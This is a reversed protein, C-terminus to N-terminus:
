SHVAFRRLVPIRSLVVRMEDILPHHLMALTLLWLAVGVGISTAVLFWSVTASWDVQMMLLFSPAVAVLMLLASQVFVRRIEGPITGALRKVHPYYLLVGTCADAVRGLAAGVLSFQCGVTFLIIGLVSRTAELRTQRATEDHLVFLEWSMGYCLSVLQMLMLCSLPLAAGLWQDGYLLHVTPKSLIAIGLLLPWMVATILQLSRLYTQRLTGTERFERSMQVFIIQTATGYVNNWILNSLNSARGYLGLAALGLVRGLILESIRGAFAGMGSMMVMRMGFTAITRWGAFSIRFGTHERGYIGYLVATCLASALSGYAPSLYSFGLLALLVTTSTLVLGSVVNILSIGKFRMERQLMVSQRFSFIGILPGIASIRLVLGAAADGFLLAGGLSAVLLVGALALSLMANVTFAADLTEPRLDRDRVVYSGVGFAFFIQVIGQTAMAIAFIGMEHPSLLRAVIISGVFAVAFSIFQGGFAWGLSRRVSM